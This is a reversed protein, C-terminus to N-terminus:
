DERHDMPHDDAYKDFTKNDDAVTIKITNNERGWEIHGPKKFEFDKTTFIDGFDPHDKEFTIKIRTSWTGFSGMVCKAKLGDVIVNLTTGCPSLMEETLLKEQM